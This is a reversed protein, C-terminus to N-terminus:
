TTFRRVAPAAVWGELGAGRVHLWGQVEAVIEYTVGPRLSGADAHGATLARVQVPQDAVCWSGHQAMPGHQAPPGPHAPQASPAPRPPTGAGATGAGPTSDVDKTLLRALAREAETAARSAEDEARRFAEAAAVDRVVAEVVGAGVRALLVATRVTTAVVGSRVAGDDDIWVSAAVAGGAVPGVAPGATVLCLDPRAAALDALALRVREAVGDDDAPWPCPASARVLLPGGDPVVTATAGDFGATLAGEDTRFTVPGYRTGALAGLLTETSTTVM